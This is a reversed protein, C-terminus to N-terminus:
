EIVEIKITVKYNNIKSNFQKMLPTYDIDITKDNILIVFYDESDNGLIIDKLYVLYQNNNATAKSLYENITELNLYNYNVIDYVEDKTTKVYIDNDLHGIIQM